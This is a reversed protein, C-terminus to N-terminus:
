LAKNVRRPVILDLRPCPPLKPLLPCSTPLHSAFPTRVLKASSQISRSCPVASVRRSSTALVDDAKTNISMGDVFQVRKGSSDCLQWDEGDAVLELKLQPVLETISSNIAEM